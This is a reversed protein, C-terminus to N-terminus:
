SALSLHVSINALQRCCTCGSADWPGGQSPIPNARLVAVKGADFFKHGYAFAELDLERIASALIPDRGNCPGIKIDDAM